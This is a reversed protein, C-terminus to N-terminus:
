EYTGLLYPGIHERLTMPSLVMGKFPGSLVRSGLNSVLKENLERLGWQRVMRHSHARSRASVIATAVKPAAAYLAQKLAHKITMDPRPALGSYATPSDRPVRCPNSRRALALQKFAISAGDGVSGALM